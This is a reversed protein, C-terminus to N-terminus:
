TPTCERRDIIGRGGPCQPRAPRLGTAFPSVGHWYVNVEVDRGVELVARDVRDLDGPDFGLGTLTADASVLTQGAFGAEAIPTDATADGTM